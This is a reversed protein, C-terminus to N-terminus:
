FVESHFDTSSSRVGMPPSIFPLAFSDGTNICPDIDAPPIGLQIPGSETNKGNNCTILPQIHSYLNKNKVM